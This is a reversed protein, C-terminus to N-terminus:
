VGTFLSIATFWARGVMTMGPSGQKAEGDRPEVGLLVGSWEHPAEGKKYSLLFAVEVRQGPAMPGLDIVTHTKDSLVGVERRIVGSNHAAPGLIARDMASRSFRLKVSDQAKRGTNGVEMKWSVFQGGGKNVPLPLRSSSYMVEYSPTRMVSVGTFGLIFAALAALTWGAPGWGPLYLLIRDVLARYNMHLETATREQKEFYM